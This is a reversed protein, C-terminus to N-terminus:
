RAKEHWTEVQFLPDLYNAKVALAPRSCAAITQSGYLMTLPQDEYFRREITALATRVEALTLADRIAELERDISTWCTYNYGGDLAAEGHYFGSLDPRTGARIAGFMADYQRNGCNEIYRGAEQLDIRMEIGLEKLDARVALLYHERIPSGANCIVTFRFPVGDKQRMGDLEVWGAERLLREAAARDYGRTLKQSPFYPLGALWPNHPVTGGGWFRLAHRELRMAHTMARRVRADSFLPHPAEALLRQLDARNQPPNERFRDPQIPNWGIFAYSLDNFFVPELRAQIDERREVPLQWAFDLEQNLLLRYLTQKDRVVAIGLDPGESIRQLILREGPIVEAVRYPGFVVLDKTWDKEAWASVAVTEFHHKPVIVGENLNLLHFPSPRSFSVRLRLSDLVQWDKILAKSSSAFWPIDPHNQLSFSYAVDDASIPRGDSWNWDQRLELELSTGTEDWTYRKVLYPELRPLGDEFVPQERFLSPFLRYSIMEGEASTSLYPNLSDPARRMGIRLVDVEGRSPEPPSWCAAALLIFLLSLLTKKM